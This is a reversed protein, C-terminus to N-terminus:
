KACVDLNFIFLWIMTEVGNRDDTSLFLSTNTMQKIAGISRMGQPFEYVCLLCSVAWVVLSLQFACM